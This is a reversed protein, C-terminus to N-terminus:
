QQQPAAKAQTRLQQLQSQIKKLREASREARARAQEEATPDGAVRAAEMKERFGAQRREMMQAIKEARRLRSGPDLPRYGLSDQLDSAADEEIPEPTPEPSPAAAPAPASALPLPAAPAASVRARVLPAPPPPPPLPVSLESLELPPPPDELWVALLVAGSVSLGALLPIWPKMPPNQGAKLGSAM